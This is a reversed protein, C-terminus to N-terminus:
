GEGCSTVALTWLTDPSHEYLTRHHGYELAYYLTNAADGFAFNTFCYSAKVILIVCTLTRSIEQVPIRGGHLTWAESTSCPRSTRLNREQLSILRFNIETFTVKRLKKNLKEDFNPHKITGRLSVFWFLIFIHVPTSFIWILHCKLCILCSNSVKKQGM